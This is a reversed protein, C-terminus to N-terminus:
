AALRSAIDVLRDWVKLSVNKKRRLMEITEREAPAFATAHDLSWDILRREAETRVTSARDVNHKARVKEMEDWIREANEDSTTETVVLGLRDCEAQYAELTTEYQARAFMYATQEASFKTATTTTTKM